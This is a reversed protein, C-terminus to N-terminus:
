YYFALTTLLNLPVGTIMIVISQIYVLRVACDCDQEIIVPVIYLKEGQQKPYEM